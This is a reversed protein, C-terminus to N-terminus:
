PSAQLEEKDSALPQAVVFHGRGSQTSQLHSVHIGHLAQLEQVPWFIRRLDM